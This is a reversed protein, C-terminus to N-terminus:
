FLCSGPSMFVIRSGLKNGVAQKQQRVTLMLALASEEAVGQLVTRWAGERVTLQESTDM